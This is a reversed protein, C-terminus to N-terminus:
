TRQLGPRLMHVISFFARQAKSETQIGVTEAGIYTGLSKVTRPFIVVSLSTVAACNNFKM